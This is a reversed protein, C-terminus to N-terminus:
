WDWYRFFIEFAVGIKLVSTSLVQIPRRESREGDGLESFRRLHRDARRYPTNGLDIFTGHIVNKTNVFDPSIPTSM